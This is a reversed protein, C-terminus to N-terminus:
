IETFNLKKRGWFHVHHDAEPVHHGALPGHHLESKAVDLIWAFKCSVIIRQDKQLRTDM